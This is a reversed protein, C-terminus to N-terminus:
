TGKVLRWGFTDNCFSLEFSANTTNVIMDEALGMLLKGNRVITINNSAINGGVHCVSIPQDSLAPNAPLTIQVAGGSVNVMLDDGAAATHDTTIIQWRRIFRNMESLDVALEWFGAALNTAFDGSTHQVICAYLSSFHPSAAPARVLDNVRYLQTSAWNSRWTFTGSRVQPVGQADFGLVLNARQAATVDFKFTAEGPSGSPFRFTQQLEAAVADFGAAIRDLHENIPDTRATQGDILTKVHDWFRNAM